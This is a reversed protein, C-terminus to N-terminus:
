AGFPAVCRTPQDFISNLGDARVAVGFDVLFPVCGTSDHATIDRAVGGNVVRITTPRGDSANVAIISEHPYSNAADIVHILGDSFTVASGASAIMSVLGVLLGGHSSVTSPMGATLPALRDRLSQVFDTDLM